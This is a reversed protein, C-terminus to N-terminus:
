GGYNDSTEIFTTLTDGVGTWTTNDAVITAAVIAAPRGNSMAVGNAAWQIMEVDNYSDGFASVASQDVGLKQSVWALGSGKDVGLAMFELYEDDTKTVHLIGKYRNKFYAELEVIKTAHDIIIMKTPAFNTLTSLDGVPISSSGSRKLYLDSWQNLESVYLSDDFYYNLHLHNKSSYAVVEAGYEVPVPKLYMTQGGVTKAVAGNYSLIINSKPLNLQEAYVHISPYMRGSALIVLGGAAIYREIGARNGNSINKEPTLLTGDIDIAAIKPFNM